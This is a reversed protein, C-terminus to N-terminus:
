SPVGPSRRAGILPAFCRRSCSLPSCPGRVAPPCSSLEEAHGQHEVRYERAHEEAPSGRRATAPALAISAWGASRHGRWGDACPSFSAARRVRRVTGRHDRGARRDAAQPRAAHVISLFALPVLSCGISRSPPWRRTRSDATSSRPAPSVAVNAAPPRAGLFATGPRGDGASLVRATPVLQSGTDPSAPACASTSRTTSPPFDRTSGASPRGSPTACSCAAPRSPRARREPVDHQAQDLEGDVLAVTAGLTTISEGFEHIYARSGCEMLKPGPSPSPRRSRSPRSCSPSRTPERRTTRRSLAVAVREPSQAAPDGPRRHRRGSRLHPRRRRHGPPHPRVRRAPAATADTSGCISPSWPTRPAPDPAALAELTRRLHEAATTPRRHHRHSQPRMPLESGVVPQLPRRVARPADSRGRTASPAVRRADSPASASSAVSASPCAAGSASASTTRRARVRPM